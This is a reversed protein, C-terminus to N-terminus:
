PRRGHDEENQEQNNIGGKRIEREENQSVNHANFAKIREKGEKVYSLAKQAQQDRM